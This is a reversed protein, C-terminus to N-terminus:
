PVTRSGNRKPDRFRSRPAKRGVSHGLARAVTEIRGELPMLAIRQALRSSDIAASTRFSAEFPSGLNTSSTRSARGARTPAILPPTRRNGIEAAPLSRNGTVIGTVPSTSLAIPVETSVISQPTSLSPSAGTSSNSSNELSPRASVILSVDTPELKTVIECTGESPSKAVRFRKRTVTFGPRGPGNEVVTVIRIADPALSASISAITKGTTPRVSLTELM